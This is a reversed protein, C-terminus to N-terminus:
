RAQNSVKVLPLNTIMVTNKFSSRNDIDVDSRLSSGGQPSGTRSTARTPTKGQAVTHVTIYMRLDTRQSSFHPGQHPCYCLRTRRVLKSLKPTPPEPLADEM